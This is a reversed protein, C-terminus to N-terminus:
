FKWIYPLIKSRTHTYEYTVHKYNWKTKIIYIIRVLAGWRMWGNCNCAANIGNSTFTYVVTATTLPSDFIRWLVLSSYNDFTYLILTRGLLKAIRASVLRFQKIVASFPKMFSGCSFVLWASTIVYHRRAYPRDRNKDILLM